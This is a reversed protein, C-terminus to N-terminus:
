NITQNIIRSIISQGVIVSSQQNTSTTSQVNDPVNKEVNSKENTRNSDNKIIVVQDNTSNSKKNLGLQNNNEDQVLKRRNALNRVPVTDQELLQNKIKHNFMQVFKIFHAVFWLMDLHNEFQQRPLLFAPNSNVPLPVQNRLYMDDLWLDTIWNETRSAFLELLKQLQRSDNSQIFKNVNEELVKYQTYSLISKMNTLYKKFTENVSPLPPKPLDQKWKTIQTLKPSPKQLQCLVKPKITPSSVPASQM